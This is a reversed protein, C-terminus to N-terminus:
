VVEPQFTSLYTCRKNFLRSWSSFARCFGHKLRRKLSGRSSLADSPGKQGPEQEQVHDLAIELAGRLRWVEGADSAGM